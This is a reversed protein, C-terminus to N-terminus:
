AKAQQKKGSGAPSPASEPKAPREDALMHISVAATFVLLLAYAAWGVAAFPIVNVRGIGLADETFVQAMGGTIMFYASLAAAIATLFAAITQALASRRSASLLKSVIFLACMILLSVFFASALIYHYSYFNLSFLGEATLLIGTLVGFFSVAINLPADGRLGYMVMFICFLIGFLMLGINFVLASSAAMFGGPYLGLETVFCNLPSYAGREFTLMSAAAAAIFIGMGALGIIGATKKSKM